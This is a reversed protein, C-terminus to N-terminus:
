QVRDMKQYPKEKEKHGVADIRVGKRKCRIKITLNKGELSGPAFFLEYYAATSRTLWGSVAAVNQPRIGMVNVRKLVSGGNYVEDVMDKEFGKYSFLGSGPVRQQRGSGDIYYDDHVNGGFGESLLYTTKPGDITKLAKKFQNFTDLYMLVTNRRAHKLGEEYLYGQSGMPDGRAGEPRKWWNLKQPNRRLKNIKELIYEGAPEPGAVYKLGGLQIELLIFRDEPEAKKILERALM